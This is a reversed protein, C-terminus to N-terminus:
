FYIHIGSEGRFSKRSNGVQEWEIRNMEEYFSEETLRIAEKKKRQCGQYGLENPDGEGKAMPIVWINKGSSLAKFGNNLAEYYAGEDYMFIIDKKRGSRIIGVHGDSLYLGLTGPSITTMGDTAGEHIFTEGPEFLVWENFLINEKGIGYLETDPNDWRQLYPYLARLQYYILDGFRSFFPIVLYGYYNNGKPDISDIYGVKFLSAITKIEYGRKLLYARADKAVKTNGNTIVTYGYPLTLKSPKTKIKSSVDFSKAYTAPNLRKLFSVSAKFDSLHEIEKILDIISTGSPRSSKGYVCGPQLCYYRSYEPKYSGSRGSKEGCGPCALHYYGKTSETLEFAASM